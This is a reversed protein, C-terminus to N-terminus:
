EIDINKIKELIFDPLESISKKNEQVIQNTELNIKQQTILDLKPNIVFIMIENNEKMQEAFKLIHDKNKELMKSIIPILMQKIM